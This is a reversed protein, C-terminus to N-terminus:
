GKKKGPTIKKLADGAAKSLAQKDKPQDKGKFESAVKRLDGIADKAEEGYSGLGIAAGTRVTIPEKDEKLIRILIPVVKESELNIQGLAEASARRVGSDSDKELAEMLYPVAPKADSSRVQGIRGLDKAADIRKGAGSKPNKFTDIYDPVKRRDPTTQADLPCVLFLGFGLALGSATTVVAFRRM